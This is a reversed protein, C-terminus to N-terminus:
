ARLMIDAAKQAAQAAHVLMARDNKLAKLWNEIHVAANALSRESSIIALACLMASGPEAILGEKSYSECDKPM